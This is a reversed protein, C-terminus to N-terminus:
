KLKKNRLKWRKRVFWFLSALVLSILIIFWLWWNTFISGQNSQNNQTEAFQENGALDVARVQVRDSITLTPLVYSTKNTKTWLGLFGVRVEYYAIGSVKDTTAFSVFPAGGFISPESAVQPTFSLPPETDIQFRKVVAAQWNANGVKSNLKFYYIGDVLDKFTLPQNVDDAQNDPSMDANSSFSFSYLEKPRPTVKVEVLNQQYWALEDPHTESKIELQTEDVVQVAFSVPQFSLKMKTGLGDSLLVTSTEDLSIKAPGSKTAQFVTRFVPFKDTNAGGAIGGILSVTGAQNEFEPAKIWLNVASGGATAKLVQLTDPTFNLLLNISNVAQGQTDLYWDIIFSQNAYVVETASGSYLLAAHAKNFGLLLGSFLALIFLITWRSRSSKRKPRAEATAGAREQVSREPPHRDKLFIAEDGGLRFSILLFPEECHNYINRIFKDMIKEADNLANIVIM